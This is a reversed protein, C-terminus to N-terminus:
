KRRKTKTAIKTYKKIHKKTKRSYKTPYNEIFQKIIKEIIRTYSSRFHLLRDHLDLSEDPVLIPHYKELFSELYADNHYFEDSCLYYRVGGIVIDDSTQNLNTKLAKVISIIEHTSYISSLKMTIADLDDESVEDKQSIKYKSFIKSASPELGYLGITYIYSLINSISDMNEKTILIPIEKPKHLSQQKMYPKHKYLKLTRQTLNKSKGGVLLGAGKKTRKTVTTNISNKPTQKEKAIEANYTSKISDELESIRSYDFDINQTCRERLDAYYSEYKGKLKDKYDYSTYQHQFIYEYMLLRDGKEAEKLNYMTDVENLLSYLLCNTDHTLLNVRPYSSYKLTSLALLQDGSRKMELLLAFRLYDINTMKPPDYNDSIYKAILPATWKEDPNITEKYGDITNRFNIRLKGKSDVKILEIDDNSFFRPSLETRHYAPYAYIDQPDEWLEFKNLDQDLEKIKKQSPKNSPDHLSEINSIFRFKHNKTLPDNAMNEFDINNIDQVIPIIKNDYNIPNQLFFHFTDLDINIKKIKEELEAFENKMTNKLTLYYKSEKNLRINRVMGKIDFLEDDGEKINTNEKTFLSIDELILIPKKNKLNQTLINLFYQRDLIDDTFNRKLETEKFNYIYPITKKIYETLKIDPSTEEFFINIFNKVKKDNDNKKSNIKNRLLYEIKGNKFAIKDNFDKYMDCAALRALQKEKPSSIIESILIERETIKKPFDKIPEMNYDNFLLLPDQIKNVEQNNNLVEINNDLAEINANTIVNNENLKRKM